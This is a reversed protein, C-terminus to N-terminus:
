LIRSSPTGRWENVKNRGYENDYGEPVEQGYDEEFPKTIGKNIHPEFRGFTSATGDGDITRYAHGASALLEDNDEAYKIYGFSYDSRRLEHGFDDGFAEGQEGSRLLSVSYPTYWDLEPGKGPDELPAKYDVFVGLMVSSLFYDGPHYGTGPVHDENPAGDLVHSTNWLHYNSYEGVGKYPHISDNSNRGKTVARPGTYFIAMLIRGLLGSFCDTM